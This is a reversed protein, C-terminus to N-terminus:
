EVSRVEWSCRELQYETNVECGPLIDNIMSSSQFQKYISVERADNLTNELGPPM